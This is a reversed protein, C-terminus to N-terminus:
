IDKLKKRKIKFKIDKTPPLYTNKSRNPETIVSIDLDCDFNKLM